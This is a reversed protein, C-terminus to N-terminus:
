EHRLAEIPSLKAAKRAPYIGFFIGILSSFGTAALVVKPDVVAEMGSMGLSSAIGCIGKAGLVGLVIGVFGGILTIIVAEMLFQFLISGTKAGLAKRIGIEKTRETVSVLMINMVGIGGVILAIGAVLMIFITVYNLIDSIMGVQSAMDYAQIYDKGRVNYRAELLSKVQRAIETVYESSDAFVIFSSFEDTYYGYLDELTTLPIEMSVDASTGTTMQKAISDNDKRVGVITYDETIGWLSMNIELGIVDTSGFLKKAGRENIVCVKSSSQAENKNYYRGRIIPANDYYQLSENGFMPAVTFTGKTSQATAQSGFAWVDTAGKVHSVKEYILEIDDNTFWISDAEDGPVDAYIQVYGGVLEDLQGSIGVKFGNGASVILIVSSIGIIIGLMTLFSRGKNGLINMLAIKIYEIIRAM